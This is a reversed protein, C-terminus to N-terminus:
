ASLAAQLDTLKSKPFIWGAGCSLRFNFRGGLSKLTDKIPRTDGVVVIAKDSYEIINVEGTKVEVPAINVAQKEAKVDVNYFRTDYQKGDVEYIFYIGNDDDFVDILNVAKEDQTVFNRIRFKQHTLQNWTNAGGYNFGFYDNWNSFDDALKPVGDFGFKNSILLGCRKLFDEGIEQKIFVHKFTELQFNDVVIGSVAVSYSYDTMGDFRGYELAHKIEKLQEEDIGLNYSINLSCGMSYFESRVSCNIGFKDRIYKKLLSTSKKTDAKVVQGSAALKEREAATSKNRAIQEAKREEIRDAQAKINNIARIVDEETRYCYKNIDKTSNGVYIHLYWRGLDARFMKFIEVNKYTERTYGNDIHSKFISNRVEDRDSKTYISKGYM